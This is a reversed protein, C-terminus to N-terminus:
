DEIKHKKKEEESLHLRWFTGRVPNIKKLVAKCRNPNKLKTIKFEGDDDVEVDFKCKESM